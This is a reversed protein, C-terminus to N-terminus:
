VADQAFVPKLDLGYVVPAIHEKAPARGLRIIM